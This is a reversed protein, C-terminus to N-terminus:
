LKIIAKIHNPVIYYSSLYSSSRFDFIVDYSVNHCNHFSDKRLVTSVPLCLFRIQWDVPLSGFTNM